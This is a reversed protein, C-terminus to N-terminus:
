TRAKKEDLAFFRNHWYLVTAICLDGANLLSKMDM